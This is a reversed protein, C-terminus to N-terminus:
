SSSWWSTAIPSVAAPSRARRRAPTPAAAAPTGTAKGNANPDASM